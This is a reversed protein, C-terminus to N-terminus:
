KPFRLTPRIAGLSRSLKAVGPQDAIRDKTLFYGVASFPGSSGFACIDSRFFLCVALALFSDIPVQSYLIPLFLATVILCSFFYKSRM